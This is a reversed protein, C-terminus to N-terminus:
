QHGFTQGITSVLDFRNKSVDSCHRVIAIDNNDNVGEGVELPTQLCDTWLEM